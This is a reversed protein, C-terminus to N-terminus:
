VKNSKEKDRWFLLGLGFLVILFSVRSVIRTKHWPGDDYEFIIKSDGKPVRVSRLVHNTQYIPTEEGNVFAKWGPKYYIESLVLLGGTESRSNIEIRNEVRSKVDAQGSSVGIIPEGGYKYIIASNSPDFGNLLTEMLSERQTEV